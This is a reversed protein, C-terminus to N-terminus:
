ADDSSEQEQKQQEALRRVAFRHFRWVVLFIVLSLAAMSGWLLWFAASAAGESLASSTALSNRGTCAAMSAALVAALLLAAIQKM